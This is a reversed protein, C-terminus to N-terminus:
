QKLSAAVPAHRVMIFEDSQQLDGVGLRTTGAVVFGFSTYLKLARLNESWVQLYVRPANALRPHELAAALLARGIGRGQAEPDVYLRDLLQDGPEPMLEPFNVESIQAYGLISGEEVYVLVADHGIIRRFYAESRNQALEETLQGPTM